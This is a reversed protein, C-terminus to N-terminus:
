LGGIRLVSDGFFEFLQAIDPACAVRMARFCEPPGATKWRRATTQKIRPSSGRGLVGDGRRQQCACGRWEVAFRM